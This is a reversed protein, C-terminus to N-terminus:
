GRAGGLFTLCQTPPVLKEPLLPLEIDEAIAQMGDYAVWCGQLTRFCM